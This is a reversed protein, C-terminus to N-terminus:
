FGYNKNQGHINQPRLRQENSQIYIYIYIELTQRRLRTRLVIVQDDSFLLTNLYLIRKFMIGADANHKWNRLLDDIYINFLALSLNCGQLLGQNRERYKTYQKHTFTLQVVAV